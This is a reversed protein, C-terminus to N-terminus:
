HGWDWSASRQRSRGLPHDAPTREELRIYSFLSEAWDDRGRM